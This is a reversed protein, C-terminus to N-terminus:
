KWLKRVKGRSLACSVLCTLLLWRVWDLHFSSSIRWHCSLLLICISGLTWVWGLASHSNVTQRSQLKMIQSLQFLLSAQLRKPTWVHPTPQCEETTNPSQSVQCMSNQLRCGGGSRPGGSRWGAGFHRKKEGANTKSSTWWNCVHHRKPLKKQFIKPNWIETFLTKVTPFHINEGYISYPLCHSGQVCPFSKPCQEIFCFIGKFHPNLHSIQSVVLWPLCNKQTSWSQPTNLAPPIYCGASKTCLFSTSCLDVPCTKKDPEPSWDLNLLPAQRDTNRVELGQGIKQNKKSVKLIHGGLAM